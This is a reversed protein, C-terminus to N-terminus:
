QGQFNFRTKTYLYKQLFLQYRTSKPNYSHSSIPEISLVVPPQYYLDSTACPQAPIIEIKLKAPEESLDRAQNEVEPPNERMPGTKSSTVHHILTDLLPEM